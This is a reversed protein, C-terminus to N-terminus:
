DSLTGHAAVHEIFIYMGKPKLVRKLETVFLFTSSLSILAKLLEARMPFLLSGLMYSRILLDRQGKTFFPLSSSHSAMIM